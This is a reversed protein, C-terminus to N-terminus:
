GLGDGCRGDGTCPVAEVVAHAPVILEPTEAGGTGHAILWPGDTEIAGTHHTRVVGRPTLREVDYGIM